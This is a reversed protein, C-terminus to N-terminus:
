QDFTPSTPLDSVSNSERHISLIYNSGLLALHDSSYWKWKDRHYRQRDYSVKWDIYVRAVKWRHMIAMKESITSFNMSIKMSSKETNPDEKSSHKSCKFRTNCRHLSVFKTNFQSSHWKITCSPMINPRWIEFFPISTSLAFIWPISFSGGDVDILPTRLKRPCASFYLRNM